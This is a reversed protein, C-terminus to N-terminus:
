HEGDENEKKLNRVRAGGIGTHISNTNIVLGSPKIALTIRSEGSLKTITIKRNGKGEKREQAEQESKTQINVRKL